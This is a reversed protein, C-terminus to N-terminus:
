HVGDRKIAQAPLDIVQYPYSSFIVRKLSGNINAMYIIFGKDDRGVNELEIWVDDIRVSTKKKTLDIVRDINGDMDDDIVNRLAEGNKSTGDYRLTEYRGDRDRDDLSLQSYQTPDNTTSLPISVNFGDSDDTAMVVVRNGKTCFLTADPNKEPVFCEWPGLRAKQWLASRDLLSDLADTKNKSLSEATSKGDSHKGSCGSTGLALVILIALNKYM